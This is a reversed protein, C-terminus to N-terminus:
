GNDEGKDGTGDILEARPEEDPALLRNATRATALGLLLGLAGGLAAAAGLRDGGHLQQGTLVGGMFLALPLVFVFFISLYPNSRPIRVRVRRGEQLGDQPVRIEPLGGSFASCACCSGCEETSRHDLRVTAGGDGVSKVVGTDEVYNM